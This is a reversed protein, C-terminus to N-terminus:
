YSLSQRRAWKSWRIAKEIKIMRMNIPKVGIDTWASLVMDQGAHVGVFADNGKKPKLILFDGAMASYVPIQEGLSEVFRIFIEKAKEQDENWLDVYNEPTVGEFESPIRVKFNKCLALMLSLCDFGEARNRGGLKYPAGIYKGTVKGLKLKNSTSKQRPGM